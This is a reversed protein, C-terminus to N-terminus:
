FVVQCFCFVVTMKEFVSGVATIVCMAKFLPEIHTSFGKNDIFYKVTNLTFGKIRSARTHKDTKGSAIQAARVAVRGVGVAFSGFHIQVGKDIM